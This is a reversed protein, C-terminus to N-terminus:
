PKSKSQRRQCVCCKPMGSSADCARCSACCRRSSRKMEPSQLAQESLTFAAAEQDSKELVRITRLRAGPYRCHRYLELAAPLEGCREYQYAIRYLLKNRRGELWANKTLFPRFRRFSIMWRSAPM